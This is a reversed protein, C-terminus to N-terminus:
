AAEEWEIEDEDPMPTAPVPKTVADDADDDTSLDAPMPTSDLAIQVRAFGATRKPRSRIATMALRADEVSGRVGAERVSVERVERWDLTHRMGVVSEGVVQVLNCEYCHIVRAAPHLDVPGNCKACRRGVVETRPLKREPPKGGLELRKRQAGIVCGAVEHPGPAWASSPTMEIVEDYGAVVDDPTIKDAHKMVAREIEDLVKQQGALRPWLATLRGHQSRIAQEIEGRARPTEVSRVGSSPNTTGGVEM